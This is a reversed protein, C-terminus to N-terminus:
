LYSKFNTYVKREILKKDLSQFKYEYLYFFDM